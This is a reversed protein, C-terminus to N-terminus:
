IFGAESDCRLLNKEYTYVLSGGKKLIESTGEHWMLDADYSDEGFCEMLLYGDKDKLVCKFM